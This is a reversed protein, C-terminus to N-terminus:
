SGQNADKEPFTRIVAQQTRIVSMRNQIISDNHIILNDLAKIMGAIQKKSKEPNISLYQYNCRDVLRTVYVTDGPLDPVDDLPDMKPKRHCAGCSLVLLLGILMLM